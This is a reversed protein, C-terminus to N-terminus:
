TARGQPPLLARRGIASSLGGAGTAGAPARSRAPSPSSVTDFTGCGLSHWAAEERSRWACLRRSRGKRFVRLRKFTEQCPVTMVCRESLLSEVIVARPWVVYRLGDALRQTQFGSVTDTVGDLIPDHADARETGDAPQASDHLVFTGGDREFLHVARDGLLRTRGRVLAAACYVFRPRRPHAAGTRQTKPSNSSSTPPRWRTAGSKTSSPSM